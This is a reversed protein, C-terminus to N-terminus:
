ESQKKMRFAESIWILEEIMKAARRDIREKDTPQGLQDFSEGVNSVSFSVPIIYAGLRSFLVKLQSLVNVGAFSGSSVTAFAM